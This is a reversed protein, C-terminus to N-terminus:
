KWTGSLLDCSAREVQANVFGLNIEKSRVRKGPKVTVYVDIERTSIPTGNGSSFRVKVRPNEKLFAKYYPVIERYRIGLRSTYFEFKPEEESAIRVGIKIEKDTKALIRELEDTNDVVPIVKLHGANMLDIM